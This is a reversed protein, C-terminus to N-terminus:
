NWKEFKVYLFLGPIEGITKKELDLIKTIEELKSKKKNVETTRKVLVIITIKLDPPDFFLSIIVLIKAGGGKKKKDGRCHIYLQYEKAISKWRFDTWIKM